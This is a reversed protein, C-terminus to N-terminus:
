RRGLAGLVRVHADFSARLAGPVPERELERLAGEGPPGALGALLTHWAREIAARLRVADPTKVAPRAAERAHFAQAAATTNAYAGAEFTAVDTLRPAIPDGPPEPLRGWLGVRGDGADTGRLPPVAMRIPYAGSGLEGIHWISIAGADNRLVVDPSGDGNLDTGSRFATGAGDDALALAPVLETAQSRDLDGADLPGAALVIGRPTAVRVAHVVRGAGDRGEYGRIVAERGAGSARAPLAVRLEDTKHLRLAATETDVAALQGAIDPPAFYADLPAAPQEGWPSVHHDSACASTLLIAALGVKEPLTARRM